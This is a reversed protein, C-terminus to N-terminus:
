PVTARRIRVGLDATSQACRRVSALSRDNLCSWHAVRVANPVALQRNQCARRGNGGGLGLRTLLM